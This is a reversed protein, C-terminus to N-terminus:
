NRGGFGKSQQRPLLPHKGEALAKQFGQEDLALRANTLTAVRIVIVGTIEEPLAQGNERAAWRITEIEHLDTYLRRIFFKIGERRQLKLDRRLISASWEAIEPHVQFPESYGGGKPNSIAHSIQM